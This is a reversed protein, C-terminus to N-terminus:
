KSVKIIPPKSSKQSRKTSGCFDPTNVHLLRGISTKRVSHKAVKSGQRQISDEDVAATELFKGIANKAMPGKMYWEHPNVRRDGHRVALLFPADPKNTEEPWHSKFLQYFHVPGRETNTAYAKPLFPRWHGNEKGKRTKTGRENLWFLMERGDQIPDTKM